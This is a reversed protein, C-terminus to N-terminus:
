KDKYEIELQKNPDTFLFTIFEEKEGDRREKTIEYDVIYVKAKLEELPNKLNQKVNRPVKASMGMREAFPILREKWHTKKEKGRKKQLYEYIRKSISFRLSTYFEWDLYTSYYLRMNEVIYHGLVIRSPFMEPSGDVNDSSDRLKYTDILRIYERDSATNLFIKEKFRLFAEKSTIKTDFIYKLANEIQRYSAGNIPKDLRKCIDYRTFSIEGTEPMGQEHYLQLLTKFIDADEDNPIMSESSTIWVTSIKTKTKEDYRSGTFRIPENTRKGHRYFAHEVLNGEVRTMATEDLPIEKKILSTLYAPPNDIRSTKMQYKCEAMLEELTSLLNKREASNYVKIWFAKDKDYTQRGLLTHLQEEYYEFDM